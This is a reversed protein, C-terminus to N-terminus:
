GHIQEQPKVAPAQDGVLSEDPGPGWLSRPADYGRSRLLTLMTDYHEFPISDRHLWISVTNVKLGLSKAIQHRGGSALILDGRSDVM